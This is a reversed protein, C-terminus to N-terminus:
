VMKTLSKQAATKAEDLSEDKGRTYIRQRIGYKTLGDVTAEVPSNGDDDAQGLM